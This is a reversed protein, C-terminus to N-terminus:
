PKFLRSQTHIGHLIDLKPDYASSEIDLMGLITHFINDHSYPNNLAKKLLVYNTEKEMMGGFWM